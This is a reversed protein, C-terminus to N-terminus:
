NSTHYKKRLYEYDIHMKKGLVIRQKDLENLTNSLREIEKKDKKSRAKELKKLTVEVEHRKAIYNRQNVRHEESARIRVDAKRNYESETEDDNTVSNAESLGIRSTGHRAFEVYKSKTEGASSIGINSIDSKVLDDKGSDISYVNASKDEIAVRSPNPAIAIPDDGNDPVKEPKKDDNKVAELPKRYNIPISFPVDTEPILQKIEPTIITFDPKKETIKETVTDIISGTKRDGVVTALVEVNTSGDVNVGGVNVTEAYAGHFIAHGNEISFLKAAPNDIPIIANGSSDINLMFVESQTGKTASIAIKLTNNGIAENPNAIIGEHFSGGPIMRSVNFEYGGNNAIGSNNAGGWDMKLENKDFVTTNNDMWTRSIHTMEGSHNAAFQDVNLEKQTQTVTDVFRSNDQVVLGKAEYSKIQDPTLQNHVTIENHQQIINYKGDNSHKSSAFLSHLTTQHEVGNISTAKAGTAMDILGVRGPDFAATVEQSILGIVAGSLAAICMAKAVEQQKLRKFVEDKKEIDAEVTKIIDVSKADLINQLNQQGYGNREKYEDTLRSDVAYKLEARALDLACREKCTNIRSSFSILDIDKSDSMTNLTETRALAELAENIASDGNNASLKDLESVLSDRLDSASVKEYLTDELKERRKAGPEYKKSQASNRAARAREDTVRFGERGGAWLSSVIAGAGPIALKAVTSTSSRLGKLGIGVVIAVGASVIEPGIISTIKYQMLKDTIKEVASFSAESRQGGREEGTIIRMQALTEDLAAENQISGKISKAIEILNNLSSASDKFKQNGYKQEFEHSLHKKEEELSDDDFNGMCYERIVNKVQVAFESDEALVERHEGADIHILDDNDNKFKDIARLMAETRENKDATEHVLVDGSDRTEEIFNNRYKGLNFERLLGGKWIRDIVRKIRGGESMEKEFKDNAFDHAAVKKDFSNDVFVIDNAHKIESNAFEDALNPRVAQEIIKNESADQSVVDSTEPIPLIDKSQESLLMLDTNEIPEMLLNADKIVLSESSKIASEPFYESM